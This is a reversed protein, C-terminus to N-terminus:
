CQSEDNKPSITNNSWQNQAFNCVIETEHWQNWALTWGIEANKWHNECKKEVSKVIKGHNEDTTWNIQTTKADAKMLKQRRKQSCNWFSYGNWCTNQAQIEGAIRKPHNQSLSNEEDLFTCERKTSWTGFTGFSIDHNFVLPKKLM